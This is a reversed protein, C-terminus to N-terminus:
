REVWRGNRYIPRSADVSFTESLRDPDIELLPSSKSRLRLETTWTRETGALLLLELRLLQNLDADSLQPRTGRMQKCEDLFRPLGGPINAANAEILETAGPKKLAALAQPGQGRRYRSLAEGVALAAASDITEAPKATVGAASAAAAGTPDLLAALALLRRKQQPNPELDALALCASRGLRRSDLV